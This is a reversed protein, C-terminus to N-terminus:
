QYIREHQLTTKQPLPTDLNSEINIIRTDPVSRHPWENFSNIVATTAPPATTIANM